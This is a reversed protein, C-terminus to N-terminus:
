TGSLELHGHEPIIDSPRNGAGVIAAANLFGDDNGLLSRPITVTVQNGNFVPRVQGVPNGAADFLTVSSDAAYTTMALEYEKGMGTPGDPTPRFEDVTTVSGTAPDQDVDFDVFAIMANPDGSTPAILPAAFTLAVVIDDLNRTVKMGTLDWRVTATGFTDGAPDSVSAEIPAPPPDQPPDPPPGASPESADSGCGWFAIAAAALLLSTRFRSLM